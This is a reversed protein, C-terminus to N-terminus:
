NTYIKTTSIAKSSSGVIYIIYACACLSSTNSLSSQAHHYLLFSIVSVWFRALLKRFSLWLKTVPCNTEEEDNSVENDSMRLQRTRGSRQPFLRSHSSSSIIPSNKGDNTLCSSTPIDMIQLHSSLRSSSSILINHPIYQLQQQITSGDARSCRIGPITQFAHSTIICSILVSLIILHSHQRRKPMISSKTKRKHSITCRKEEELKGM